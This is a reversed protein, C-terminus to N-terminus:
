HQKPQYQLWFPYNIFYLKASDLKRALMYIIEDDFVNCGYDHCNEEDFSETYFSGDRGQYKVRLNAGTSHSYDYSDVKGELVKVSTEESDQMFLEASECGKKLAIDFVQKRFDDFRM